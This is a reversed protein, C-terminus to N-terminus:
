RRARETAALVGNVAGVRVEEAPDDLMLSLRGVAKPTAFTGYVTAAHARLLPNPSAAYEDAIFEGGRLGMGALAQAITLRIESPYQENTAPDRFESLYVLRDVSGQDRLQGLIQSALATAELDEPRSPFLAARIVQVQGEDGLKAMAEAAQLDFLRNEEKTAGRARNQTADRLMAIASPNGLEGLLFAAHSRLRVSDSELMARGIPTIDVPEDLRSLAFRASLRVFDSSDDVLPRIQPAVASIKTRGAAVAAVSRVGPNPDSLAQRIIDTARTPAKSAAEIANARVVPNTSKALKTLHALARERLESAAVPNSLNIPKPEGSQVTGASANGGTRVPQTSDPKPSTQAGPSCASLAACAVALCTAMAALSPGPVARCPTPASPPVPLTHM